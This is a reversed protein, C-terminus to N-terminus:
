VLDGKNNLKNILEAQEKLKNEMEVMKKNQAEIPNIYNKENEVFANVYDKFYPLNNNECYEDFDIMYKSFLFENFFKDKLTTFKEAVLPQNKIYDIKEKTMNNTFNDLKKLNISQKGQVNNNNSNIEKLKKLENIKQELEFSNYNNNGKNFADYISM